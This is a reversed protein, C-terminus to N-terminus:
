FNKNPLNLQDVSPRGLYVASDPPTYPTPGHWASPTNLKVGVRVHPAPACQNFHIIFILGSIIVVLKKM